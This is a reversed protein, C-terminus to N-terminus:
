VPGALKDEPADFNGSLPEATFPKMTGDKMNYVTTVFYPADNKKYKDVFYILDGEVGEHSSAPFSYCRCPDVFICDGGISTVETIRCPDRSMDLEFVEVKEVDLLSTCGNIYRVIVLLRGRWVVMNRRPIWHPPYHVDPLQEDEDAECEEVNSVNVGHEDEGLTVAFLWPNTWEMGPQWLTLGPLYRWDALGPMTRRYSFGAVICKAGSDPPASIVVHELSRSIRRDRDDTIWRAEGSTSRYPTRLRPLRIFDRSFANVLLRENGADDDDKCSQSSMTMPRAVLLWGEISGVCHARDDAVEEPMRFRWPAM